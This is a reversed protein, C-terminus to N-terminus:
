DAGLAMGPELWDAKVLRIAGTVLNPLVPFACRRDNAHRVEVANFPFFDVLYCHPRHVGADNLRSMKTELAVALVDEVQFNGKAILMAPNLTCEHASRVCPGDVEDFGQCAVRGDAM